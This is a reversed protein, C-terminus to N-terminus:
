RGYFQKFVSETDYDAKRSLEVFEVAVTMCVMPTAPPVCLKVTSRGFSLITAEIVFSSTKTLRVWWTEGVQPKRFQEGDLYTKDSERRLLDM